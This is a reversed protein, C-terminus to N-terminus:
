DNKYDIFNYLTYNQVIFNFINIKNNIRAM